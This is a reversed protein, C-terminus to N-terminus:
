VRFQATPSPGGTDDLSAVPAEQSSRTYGGSGGSGAGSSGGAAAGVPAPTQLQAYVRAQERSPFDMPKHCHPCRFRAQVPPIKELPISLNGACNPCTFTYSLEPDSVAVGFFLLVIKARARWIEAGSERVLRVRSPAACSRWERSEARKSSRCSTSAAVRGSRGRESFTPRPLGFFEASS